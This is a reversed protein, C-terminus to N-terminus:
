ALGSSLIVFSRTGRRMPRGATWSLEVVDFGSAGLVWASSAFLVARVMYKQAVEKLEPAGYPMFEYLSTSSM